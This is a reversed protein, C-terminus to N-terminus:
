LRQLTMRPRRCQHSRALRCFTSRRACSARRLKTSSNFTQPKTACLCTSPRSCLCTSPRNHCDSWLSRHRASSLKDYDAASSSCALGAHILVTIQFDLQCDYEFCILAVLAGRALTHRLTVVSIYPFSLFYAVFHELKQELINNLSEENIVDLYILTFAALRVWDSWSSNGLWQWYFWRLTRPQLVLALPRDSWFTLRRM